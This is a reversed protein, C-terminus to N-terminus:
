LVFKILALMEKYAVSTVGDMCKTLERVANAIIPRSYKVLYLLMGVVRLSESQM